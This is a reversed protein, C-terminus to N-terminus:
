FILFIDKNSDIDFHHLLLCLVDTDDSYVMVNEEDDIAVKVITTDASSPCQVVM